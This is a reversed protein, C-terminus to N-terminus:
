GQGGRGPQEFLQRGGASRRERFVERDRRRNRQVRRYRRCGQRATEQESSDGEGYKSTRRSSERVRIKTACFKPKCRSDLCGDHSNTWAFCTFNGEGPTSSCRM